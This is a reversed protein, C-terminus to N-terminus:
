LVKDIFTGKKILVSAGRNCYSSHMGLFVKIFVDKHPTKECSLPPAAKTQFTRVQRNEWTPFTLYTWSPRCGGGGQQDVLQAHRRPRAPLPAGPPQAGPVHRCSQEQPFVVLAAGVADRQRSRTVKLGDCSELFIRHAPSSRHARNVSCGHFLFRASAVSLFRASTLSSFGRLYRSVFKHITCSTM